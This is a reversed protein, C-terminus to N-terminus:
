YKTRRSRGARDVLADWQRNSAGIMNRRPDTLHILDTCLEHTKIGAIRARLLKLAAARDRSAPTM